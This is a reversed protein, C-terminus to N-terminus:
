SKAHPSRAELEAIRAELETAERIRVLQNLICDAARVRVNDHDSTLGSELAEVAKVGVAALRGLIEDVLKSRYRGILRVCEPDDLYRHGQRESVGIEAAADRIAMGAALLVAFQEQKASLSAVKQRKM